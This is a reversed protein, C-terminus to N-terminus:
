YNKLFRTWLSCLHVFIHARKFIYTCKLYSHRYKDLVSLPHLDWKTYWIGTHLWIGTQHIFPDFWSPTSKFSNLFCNLSNGWILWEGLDEMMWRSQAFCLIFLVNAWLYMTLPNHMIFLVWQHGVIFNISNFFNEKWFLCASVLCSQMFSILSILSFKSSCRQNM